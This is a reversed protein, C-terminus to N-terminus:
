ITLGHCKRAFEIQEATGRGDLVATLVTRDEAFQRPIQAIIDRSLKAGNFNRSSPGTCEPGIVPTTGTGTTPAATPTAMQCGALAAVAICIAFQKM